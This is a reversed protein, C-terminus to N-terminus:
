DLYYFPNAMLLAHAFRIWAEDEGCVATESALWARARELDAAVPDRQWALQFAARLAPDASHAEALALGSNATAAARARLALAEASERVLPANAAFLSQHAVTTRPRAELPVSPDNFDFIAFVDFIANRVIPLYLSRRPVTYDVLNASQDNNVYERNQTLLLSGGLAPDLRGSVVLLSDRVEEADLRRPERRWLLQNAPDVAGADEQWASSMRWASSRMLLRHMEKVSWGSAVFRAALWDLLAPDLPADGRVGFNSPSAVLGRGFHHQWIRNVMVRATLPNRPDATWRALQLRGSAGAPIPEMECAFAAARVPGRPVPAGRPTLHDGRHLISLDAPNASEFVTMVRPLPPPAGGEVAALEARRANLEAQAAPAILEERDADSLPIPLSSTAALAVQYRAALEELSAPAPARVIAAAEADLTLSGADLQGRLAALGPAGEQLFAHWPAWMDDLQDARSIVAAYARVDRGAFLAGLEPDAEGRDAPLLLLRSLHPFNPENELRLLHEGATAEWEAATSWRQHELSFGGTPEGMASEALKAGDWELRVPRADASAYRLELRWRGAAPLTVRFEAIQEGGTATHLIPEGESGWQSPDLTLNTNAVAGAELLVAEELLRRSALLASAVGDRLVLEASDRGSAEASELAAQAAHLREAHEKARLVQEASGIEREAWAAVHDKSAFADASRFIGAVAYYDEAPVPDFKHDHCRACSVTLGLFTRSWVDIQEDVTDYVLKEKDQEALMKPGLALFTPATLQDARAADEGPDPLLDGAIQEIVFRDYPKDQNFARAVYDRYRWAHGFTLNEDLGNSDAYRALDLWHRAWQEGYHPSALLRDVARDWAGPATDRVFAEIEEPQPPLGTLVYSARRLLTPRDAEPAPTLGAGELRALVFRDVENAVWIEQRVAPPAADSVPQFSWFQKAEEWDFSEIVPQAEAPATAGDQVWQVLLAIEAESLAKEPPMREEEDASRIRQILLSNAPDGPVLAPGDAGGLLWNEPQDLRLGGKPKRVEAGHCEACNAELLPRIEREYFLLREEQVAPEQPGALPLLLLALM